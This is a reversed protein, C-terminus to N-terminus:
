VVFLNAHPVKTFVETSFGYGPLMDEIIRSNRAAAQLAVASDVDGDTFGAELYASRYLLILINNYALHLMNAHFGPRNGFDNELQM